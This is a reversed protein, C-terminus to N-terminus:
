RNWGHRCASSLCNTGPFFSITKERTTSYVIGAILGLLSSTVINGTLQDDVGFSHLSFAALLQLYYSISIFYAFSLIIRSFFAVKQASDHEDEIPEFHQINFRIASGVGYALVLLGIMCPLAYFGVIDALLPASILFGSGMISALPTVTAAWDSSQRLKKSFALYGGVLLTLLIILISM